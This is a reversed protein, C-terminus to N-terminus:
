NGARSSDDVYPDFTQKAQETFYAQFQSIILDHMLRAEKPVNELRERRNPNLNTTAMFRLQLTPIEGPRTPPGCICQAGVHSEPDTEGYVNLQFDFPPVIRPLRGPIAKFMTVADGIKLQAGDVFAPLTVDNLLNVYEMTVGSVASVEFHAAWRYLWQDILEELDEYRRPVGPEGLVNFSIRDPWLQMGRERKAGEGAGRWFTQRLTMTQKTPDLVPMGEKERVALTWETVTQAHPFDNRVVAEWSEARFQFTEESIPAHVTFAREIIPPKRYRIRPTAM